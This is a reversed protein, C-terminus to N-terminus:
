VAHRRQATLRKFRTQDSLLDPQMRQQRQQCEVGAEPGGTDRAHDQEGDAHDEKFLEPIVGSKGSIESQANGGRATCYM